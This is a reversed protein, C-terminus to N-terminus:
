QWGSRIAVSRSGAVGRGSVSSQIQARLIRSEEVLYAVTEQQRDAWWGAV